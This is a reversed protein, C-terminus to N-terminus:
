KKRKLKNHSDCSDIFLYSPECKINNNRYIKNKSYSINLIKRARTCAVYFLREEENINEAFSHPWVGEEIGVLLVTDFELGKSAHATLLKVGHGTDEELFTSALVLEEITNYGKIVDSFSSLMNRDSDKKLSARYDTKFLIEEVADSPAMDKIKDLLKIFGKILPMENSIERLYPWGKQLLIEIKKPGFKRPPTNVARALSELDSRNVSSKLYSLLDRSVKRKFYPLGGVVKYPIRKQAFVREFLLSRTNVRYLIAINEFDRIRLIANSIKEAEDEQDYFGTFSVQGKFDNKAIMPEGYQIYKNAHKIVEPSSRYNFILNCVSPNYRDIFDQMNEPNAGRWSYVSNHTVIGNAIFNHANKIDLDYIYGSYKERKTSTIMDMIIHGNDEIFCIMGPLVHSAPLMPLSINTFKATEIINLPLLKNINEALEYIHALDQSTSETKYGKRDKARNVKYGQEKLKIGDEIDSGTITYRHSPKNKNRTDACLNITFNRRKRKNLSKPIHHPKEFFLGLDKLLRKANSETDIEKFLRGIDKNSPNSDLEGDRKLFQQWPLGYKISYYEEYYKVEKKTDYAGLLWICDGKEQTLRHKYGLINGDKGKKRITLTVGIRYGVGKKYMLYVFHKPDSLDKRYGAFHIHGLTTTLSKGSKTTITVVDRNTVYKKYFKNILFNNIFSNGSASTIKEGESLNEVPTGSIDTGEIVCQNFDGVVFLTKSNATHLKNVIEYQILSTDQFEDVLLHQWLRSYHDSCDFHSLCDDAYTLLDDFDCANNKLLIENYAKYIFLFNKETLENTFRSTRFVKRINDNGSSKINSIASVYTKPDGPLEHSKIITRIISLQNGDDYISFPNKLVTHCTYNKVISVCLSHITSVQMDGISGVNDKIRKKMENAAKNTFTIACINKPEVGQELLLLIKAILCRTKGSGASANVIVPSKAYIAKQQESDLNIV